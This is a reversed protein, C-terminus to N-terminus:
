KGTPRLIGVLCFFGKNCFIIKCIKPESIKVLATDERFAVVGMDGVVQDFVCYGTKTRNKGFIRPLDGAGGATKIKAKM